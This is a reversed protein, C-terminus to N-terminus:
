KIKFLGLKYEPYYPVYIKIAYITKNNNNPDSFSIYNMDDFLVKSIEYRYSKPWNQGSHLSLRMTMTSLCLQGKPYFATLKTGNPNFPERASAADCLPCFIFLFQAHM